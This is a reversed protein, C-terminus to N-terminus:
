SYCEDIADQLADQMVQSHAQRAMYEKLWIQKEADSVFSQKTEISIEYIPLDNLSSSELALKYPELELDESFVARVAKELTLQCEVHSAAFIDNTKILETIKDLDGLTMITFPNLQRYFKYGSARSDKLTSSSNCLAILRENDVWYIKFMKVDAMKLWSAFPMTSPKHSAVIADRSRRVIEDHKVDVAIFSVNIHNVALNM